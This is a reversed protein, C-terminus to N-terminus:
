LRLRERSHSVMRERRQSERSYVKAILTALVALVIAAAEFVIWTSFAFDITVFSFPIFPQFSSGNSAFVDYSVHALVTVAGVFALKITSGKSVNLKIALYVIFVSSLAAYLISHDPRGSVDFGLASLIHDVDILIAFATTLM